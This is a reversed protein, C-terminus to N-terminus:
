ATGDPPSEMMMQEHEAILAWTEAPIANAEIQGALHARRVTEADIRMQAEHARLFRGWDM